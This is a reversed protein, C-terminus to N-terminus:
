RAWAPAVPWAVRTTPSAPLACWASAPWGSPRSASRMRAWSPACAADRHRLHEQRGSAAGLPDSVQDDHISLYVLSDARGTVILADYGARRLTHSWFSGSLSDGVMGTLPSKAVVAHKSGTAVPTGAFVGPPLSWCTRRGWRIPAPPCTTTSCGRAWGWAAWITHWSARGRVEEGLQTERDSGRVSVRELYM